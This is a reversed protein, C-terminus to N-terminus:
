ATKDQVTNEPLLPGDYTGNKIGYYLDVFADTIRDIAGETFEVECTIEQEKGRAMPLGGKGKIKHLVPQVGKRNFNEWYKGISNM